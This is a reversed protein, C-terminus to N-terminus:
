ENNSIHEKFLQVNKFISRKTDRSYKFFDVFVGISKLLLINSLGTMMMSQDTSYLHYQYGDTDDGNEMEMRDSIDAIHVTASTESFVANYLDEIEAAIAIERKNKIFSQSKELEKFLGPNDKYKDKLISYNEEVNELYSSHSKHLTFLEYTSSKKSNLYMKIMVWDEYLVVRREVEELDDGPMTLYYLILFAELQSRVLTSSNLGHGTLCLFTIAEQYSMGVSFVGILSALYFDFDEELLDTRETKDIYYLCKKAASSM